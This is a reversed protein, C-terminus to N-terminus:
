TNNFILFIVRILFIRIPKCSLSPSHAPIFFLCIGLVIKLIHYPSWSYFTLLCFQCFNLLFITLAFLFITPFFNSFLAFLSILLMVSLAMIILDRLFKLIMTLESLTTTNQLKGHPILLRLVCLLLVVNLCVHPNPKSIGQNGSARILGLMVLFSAQM